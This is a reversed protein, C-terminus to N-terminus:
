YDSWTTDHGGTEAWEKSGMQVLRSCARAFAFIEEEGTFMASAGVIEPPLGLDDMVSRMHDSLQGNASAGDDSFIQFIPVESSIFLKTRSEYCADIFTIFRRAVDKRGIDLKPVDTVFITGFIRTIELYDAASLPRACLEDFTFRAVHSTSLPVHITRGFTTLPRNAVVPDALPSSSSSTLPTTLSNFLKDIEARNEPTLPSYYVHSLARPIRRYDTGSDLNTIQFYSKLLDIAPIFSSRQIGNKYLEDPHRNSTIIMVVGYRLLNEFLRRLIMADAIDTVQFEDFCLVYAESALDRAVPLIPDGGDHAGMQAKAAHVRKHVDIMFAHFHVRRKRAITPPLSHYFLDMLMTKGTGVDGYLYLGKPATQPPADPEPTATRTFIRSLLSSASPAASPVPPPAYSLVNVYFSQLLQIIRRQHTDPRLTGSSILFDYQQLPHAATTLLSSSPSGAVAAASALTSKYVARTRTLRRHTGNNAAILRRAAARM